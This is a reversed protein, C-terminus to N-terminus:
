SWPLWSRAKSLFRSLRSGSEESTEEEAEVSRPGTGQREDPPAGEKGPSGEQALEDPLAGEEDPIGEQAAAVGQVRAEEVSDSAVGPLYDSIVVLLLALAVVVSSVNWALQRRSTSRRFEDLEREVASRIEGAMEHALGKRLDDLVKETIRDSVGKMQEAILEKNQRNLEGIRRELESSRSDPAQKPGDM